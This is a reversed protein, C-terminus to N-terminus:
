RIPLKSGAIALARTSRTLLPLAHDVIVNAGCRELEDQLPGEFPLVVTVHHGDAVHRASMRLLSRSAGYLDAGSHVLLLRM